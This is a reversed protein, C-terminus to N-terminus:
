RPPVATLLAAGEAISTFRSEGLLRKPGEWSRALGGYHRIRTLASVAFHPQGTDYEWPHLCSTALVGRREADALVSRVLAYRPPEFHARPSIGVRRVTASSVELLSVAAREHM